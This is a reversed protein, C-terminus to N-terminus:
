PTPDKPLAAPSEPALLNGSWALPHAATRFTPPWDIRSWSCGGHGDVEPWKAVYRDSCEECKCNQRREKRPWFLSNGSYGCRGRGFSEELDGVIDDVLEAIDPGDSNDRDSGSGWTSCARIVWYRPRQNITALAFLARGDGYFVPLLYPTFTIADAPTWLYSREPVEIELRLRQHVADGSGDHTQAALDSM